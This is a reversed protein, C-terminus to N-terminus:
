AFGGAEPLLVSANAVIWLERRRQHSVRFADVYLGVAALHVDVIGITHRVDERASPYRVVSAGSAGIEHEQIGTVDALLRRLLDIRVSPRM